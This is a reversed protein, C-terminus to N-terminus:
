GFVHASFVMNVDTGGVATAVALPLAVKFFGRRTVLHRGLQVDGGFWTTGQTSVVM